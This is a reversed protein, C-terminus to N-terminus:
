RETRENPDLEFWTDTPADGEPHLALQLAAAFAGPLTAHACDAVLGGAYWSLYAFPPTAVTVHAVPHSDCDRLGRCEDRHQDRIIRLRMEAPTLSGVRAGTDHTWMWVVRRGIMNEEWVRGYRDEWAGSALIADVDGHVPCRPNVPNLEEGERWTCKCRESQTPM